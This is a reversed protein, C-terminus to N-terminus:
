LVGVDIQMWAETSAGPAVSRLGHASPDAMHIANSVHSVPEVCFYDRQPPTYVVVRRLDSSIQLSMKEDRIRATGRWGDFCHDYDLHQVDGDIGSQALKRVPLQAADPEWRGECELHLRSRQRKPFYPHWGLGVPQAIDVTISRKNRNTGLYYAAEATDQGGRDKLFPPGWGRTDDGGPHGDGPPREVKVVDAGLDALTQTCWPGALVRSLDLVRVGALSQPTAPAASEPAPATM